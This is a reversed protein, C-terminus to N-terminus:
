WLLRDNIIQILFPSQTPTIHSSVWKQLERVVYYPWGCGGDPASQYDNPPRMVKAPEGHLSM